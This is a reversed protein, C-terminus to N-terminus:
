LLVVTPDDPAAAPGTDAAALGVVPMSWVVPLIVLSAAVATRRTM